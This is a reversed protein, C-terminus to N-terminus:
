ATACRCKRDRCGHSTITKGSLRRVSQGDSSGEAGVAPEWPDPLGNGDYDRGEFSRNEIMEAWIGGYVVRGVHEVFHGYVNRDIKGLVQEPFVTFTAKIPGVPPTGEEHRSPALTTKGSAAGVTCDMSAGSGLVILALASSMRITSVMTM